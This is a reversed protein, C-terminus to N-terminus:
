SKLAAPTRPHWRTVLLYLGAVVVAVSFWQATSMGLTTELRVRYIEAIWREIGVLVLYVGFLWGPTSPRTRLKWLVLVIPLMMLIEYLPTPHVLVGPPTPVVGKAYSMAWPVDSPPGYDGDGSLQCGVRGFMYAAALGPAFADCLAWLSQKKRRALWLAALAGGLLGGYWTLGAGGIISGFPDRLVQAPHELMWYLRAGVIGGILAYMPYGELHMPEIGRRRLELIVLRAGVAFAVLVMMGFSYIKIPGLELLVPIM